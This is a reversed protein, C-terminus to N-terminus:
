SANSHSPYAIAYEEDSSFIPDVDLMRGGIPEAIRWSRDEYASVKFPPEAGPKRGKQRKRKRYTSSKEERAFGESEKGAFAEVQSQLDGHGVMEAGQKGNAADSGISSNKKPAKELTKRGRKKRRRKKQAPLKEALYESPNMSSAAPVIANSSQNGAPQRSSKSNPIDGTQASRCSQIGSPDGKRIKKSQQHSEAAERTESRKRKAM